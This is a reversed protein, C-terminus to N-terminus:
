PPAKATHFFVQDVPFVFWGFLIFIWMSLLLRQFETNKGELFHSYEKMFYHKGKKKLVLIVKNYMQVRMLPPASLNASRANRQHTHAVLQTAKHERSIPSLVAAIM